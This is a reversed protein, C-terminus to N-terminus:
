PVCSDVKCTTGAPCETVSSGLWVCEGAACQAMLFNTVHTPDDATCMTAHAPCATNECTHFPQEGLVQVCGSGTVDSFCAQKCVHQGVHPGSGAGGTVFSYMITDGACAAPDGTPFSATTTGASGQCTGAVCAVTCTVTVASKWQCLGDVCMPGALLLADKNTCTAAVSCDGTGICTQIKHDNTCRASNTSLIECPGNCTLEHSVVHECDVASYTIKGSPLCTVGPGLKPSCAGAAGGSNGGGIGTAGGGGSGVGSATTGTGGNSCAALRLCLAAFAILPVHRSFPASQRSM